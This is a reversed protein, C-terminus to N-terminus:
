CFKWTFGGATNRKGNCVMCIAPAKIGTLREAERISRFVQKTEVCMVKNGLSEICKETRNGYTNNYKRTCWELNDATPNAPNEDKHNIEKLNDPNPIFATAVLRHILFFKRKGDSCLYISPYGYKNNFPKIYRNRKKSFVNGREDITYNEFGIIEKQM